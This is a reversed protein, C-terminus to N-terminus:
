IFADLLVDGPVNFSLSRVHFLEVNSDASSAIPSTAESRCCSPPSMM